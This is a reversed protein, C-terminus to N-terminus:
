DSLKKNWIEKLENLIGKGLGLEFAIGLYTSALGAQVGLMHYPIDSGIAKGIASVLIYAPCFYGASHIIIEYLESPKEDPAIKNEDLSENWLEEIPDDKSM